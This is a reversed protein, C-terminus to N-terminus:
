PRVTRAAREALPSGDLGGPGFDAILTEMSNELHDLFLALPTM